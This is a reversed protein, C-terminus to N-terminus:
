EVAPEDPPLSEDRCDGLAEGDKRDDAQDLGQPPVRECKTRGEIREDPAQVVESQVVDPRSRVESVGVRNRLEQVERELQLEGGDRGRQDDAGERLPDPEFGEQDVDDEPRREDIHGDRVPIPADAAEELREPDDVECAPQDDVGGRPNGRDRGGKDDPSALADCAEVAPRIVDWVHYEASGYQPESPKAEVGP